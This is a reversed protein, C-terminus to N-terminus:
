MMSVPDVDINTRPRQTHLQTLVARARSLGQGALPIKLMLHRRHRGRLLSMPAPAPGLLQVSHEALAERLVHAARTSAEVVQSEDEDEWVM